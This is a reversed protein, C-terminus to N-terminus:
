QRTARIGTYNTFCKFIILTWREPDLRNEFAQRDIAAFSEIELIIGCWCPLHQGAYAHLSIWIM